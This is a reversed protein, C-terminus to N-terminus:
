TKIKYISEELTNIKNYVARNAIASRHTEVTLVTEIASVEQRFSLITNQIYASVPYLELYKCIRLDNVSSVIQPFKLGIDCISRKIKETDLAPHLMFFIQEQIIDKRNQLTKLDSLFESLNNPALYFLLPANTLDTHILEEISEIHEIQVNLGEFIGNISSGHFVILTYNREFLIKNQQSFRSYDFRRNRKESLWNQLAEIQATKTEREDLENKHFLRVQNENVGARLFSSQLESFDLKTGTYELDFDYGNMEDHFIAPIRGIWSQLATDQHEEVLSNIRPPHGNFKIKTELLYPNYSLEVKAM